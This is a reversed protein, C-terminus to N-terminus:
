HNAETTSTDLRTFADLLLRVPRVAALRTEAKPKEYQDLSQRSAELWGDTPQRGSQLLSMAEVAIKATAALSDSIPLVEDLMANGKALLRLQDPNAKWAAFSRNLLAADQPSRTAIWAQVARALTWMPESEPRAADVFRNLPIPSSYKREDRRGTIGLAEVSDALTMLASADRWGALRDLMPLYNARHQIGTFELLRTIASLRAYMSTVDKVEKPSWFREAIAAMRPWIRSDVTEETTYEDWM